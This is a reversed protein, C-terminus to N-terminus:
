IRWHTKTAGREARAAEALLVTLGQNVPHAQISAPIFGAQGLWSVLTQRDVGLRTDGYKQRMAENEHRDFDAVLLVGSPALVRRAEALAAVPDPLHHLVMSLVVAQAEGERLPLQTLEGHRLSIHGESETGRFRAQALELMGEANDVGIVLCARPVLREMLEGPGCGLDAVTAGEPVRRAIDGYLDYGGLVEAHLHGWTDAVADFFRRTALVRESLVAQAREADAAYPAAQPALLAFTGELFARAQPRSQADVARCLTWQGERRCEILGAESLIKLHRSIRSQGMGFMIVLEGVNMEHLCLVRALRLRTEDALAKHCRLIDLSTLSM